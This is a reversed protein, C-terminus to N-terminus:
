DRLRKQQTALMVLVLLCPSLAFVVMVTGNLVAQLNGAFVRTLLKLWLYLIVLEILSEAFM